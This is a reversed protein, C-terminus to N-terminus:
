ASWAQGQGETALWGVFATLPGTKEADLAALAVYGTRRVRIQPLLTMIRGSAVDSELLPLPRIGIGLGDEVVQRTVFSHDFVRRPRAVLHSLGARELWDIGDGPRTESALLVHGEVDAPARIPHQAFLAPSMIPTDVDELLSPATVRGLARVPWVAGSRSM